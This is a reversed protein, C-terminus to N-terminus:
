SHLKSELVSLLCSIFLPDEVRFEAQLVYLPLPCGRLPIKVADKETTVLFDLEKQLFLKRIAELDEERYFHHDPFRLPLIERAGLKKLTTEFREPHALGSLAGVRKGRLFDLAKQESGKLDQLRLPVYDGEFLPARPHVKQLFNKLHIREEESIQQVGTLVLIDARRLAQLPERLLGRPLLFGFGFPNTGDILLLDKDRHLRWHQFADDLLLVKPQFQKEALLAAPARRRGIIIPVGPLTQALLYPEDGAERPTLLIRKGDSVIAPGVVSGKYGKAIVVPRYGAEQLKRALFRVCGTKGTGGVTLNGVSIVPTNLRVKRLLGLRFLGQYIALGLHYFLSALWLAERLLTASVGSTEGAMLKLLQDQRERSVLM